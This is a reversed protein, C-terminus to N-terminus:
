AKRVSIPSSPPVPFESHRLSRSSCSRVFAAPTGVPSRPASAAYSLASSAGAHHGAQQPAVRIGIPSRPASAACSLNSTNAHHGAQQTSSLHGSHWNDESRRSSSQCLPRKDEVHQVARLERELRHISAELEKVSSQTNARLEFSAERQERAQAQLTKQIEDIKRAAETETEEAEGLRSSFTKHAERMAEGEQV